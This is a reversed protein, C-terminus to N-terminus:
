CRLSRGANRYNGPGCRDRRVSLAPQPPRPHPSAVQRRQLLQGARVRVGGQGDPRRHPQRRLLPGSSGPPAPPPYPALPAPALPILHTSLRRLHSIPVPPCLLRRPPRLHTHTHAHTREHTHTHTRAHERRVRGRSTLHISRARAADLRFPLSRSRSRVCALALPARPIPPPPRAPPRGPLPPPDRTAPSLPPSPAPLLLPASGGALVNVRIRVSEFGSCITIRFKLTAPTVAPSPFVWAPM